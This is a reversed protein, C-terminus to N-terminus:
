AFGGLRSVKQEQAPPEMPAESLAVPPEPNPQSPGESPVQATPQARAAPQEPAATEPPAEAEEKVTSVPLAQDNTVNGAQGEVGSSNVPQLFSPDHVAIRQRLLKNEERLCNADMSIRDCHHNLESIAGTLRGLLTKSEELEATAKVWEATKKALMDQM